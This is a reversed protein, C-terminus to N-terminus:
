SFVFIVWLFVVFIATWYIFTCIWCKIWRLCGSRNSQIWYVFFSSEACLVNIKNDGKWWNKKKQLISNNQHRTTFQLGSMENLWIVVKRECDIYGHICSHSLNSGERLWEGMKLMIGTYDHRVCPTCVVLM